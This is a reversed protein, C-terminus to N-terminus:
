EDSMFVRILVGMGAIAVFATSLIAIIQMNGNFWSNGSVSNDQEIALQHSQESLPTMSQYIDFSRIQIDILGPGLSSRAEFIITYIGDGANRDGNEGDDNLSLWKESSGIPALRGIKAQVVSVGDPDDVGVEIIHAAPSENASLIISETMIFNTSKEDYKSLSIPTMSPPENLIVFSLEGNPSEKHITRAGFNDVLIVNFTIEGPRVGYPMMTTATWSGGEPQLNVKEGGYNRLDVFIESIGHQDFASVGISFQDGRFLRNASRQLDSVRPGPNTLELSSQETITVWIDSVYITVNFDGFFPGDSNVKTTWIDDHIVQDGSLGSDSLEVLGLGAETLDLIVNSVDTNPDEVLIEIHAEGGESEWIAERYSVQVVQPPTNEAATIISPRLVRDVIQSETFIATSNSDEEIQIERTCNIILGALVGENVTSGSSQGVGPYHGIWEASNVSHGDIQNISSTNTVTISMSVRGNNVLDIEDGVVLIDPVFGSERSVNSSLVPVSEPPIPDLIVPSDRPFENNISGDDEVFRYRIIPSEWDINPTMYEFTLNHDSYLSQGPITVQSGSVNFWYENRIVLVDHEVGESNLQKGSDSIMRVSGFSGSVTGTYIGDLLLTDEVLVGNIQETHLNDITGNVEIEVGNEDEILVDFRGDGRFRLHQQTRSSNEWTERFIFEDLEFDINDSGFEILASAMAEIWLDQKVRQGAIDMVEFRLLSVEGDLDLRGDEDSNLSISGNAELILHESVVGNELSRTYSADSVTGNVSIGNLGDDLTVFIIGSGRLQFDQRLLESESWSENIWANTIELGLEISRGDNEFLLEITGNGLENANLISQQRQQWGRANVELYAAEDNSQLSWSTERTIEHDLTPQNWVSVDFSRNCSAESSQVDIVITDGFKPANSMQIDIAGGAVLVTHTGIQQSNGDIHTASVDVNTPDVSIPLPPQFNVRYSHGVIVQDEEDLSANWDATIECARHEDFENIQGYASMSSLSISFTLLALFLALFSKNKM